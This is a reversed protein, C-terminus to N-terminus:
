SDFCWPCVEKFLASGRWDDRGTWPYFDEEADASLQIERSSEHGDCPEVRVVVQLREEAGFRLATLLCM